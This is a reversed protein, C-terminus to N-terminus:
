ITRAHRLGLCALALLAVVSVSAGIRWSRPRYVARIDVPGAKTKFAMAADLARRPELRAGDAGYLEWGPYLPEAILVIGDGPAQGTVRFRDDRPREYRLGQGDM